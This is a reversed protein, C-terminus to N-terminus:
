HISTVARMNAYDCRARYTVSSSSRKRVRAHAPRVPSGFDVIPEHPASGRMRPASKGYHPLGLLRQVPLATFPDQHHRSRGAFPGHGQRNHGLRSRRAPAGPRLLTVLGDRLNPDFLDVHLSVEEDIAAADSRGDGWTPVDSTLMEYLTVAPAFREAHSDWRPPRRVSLFPDLYPRTGAQINDAPTRSLSFDFLVLHKKGSRGVTAIGINEPKIDRHAVGHEELHDVADLLEEGFRRILDLSLRDESRLHQALTQEGAREMLIAARGAVELSRRTKVINTHHLGALVKAEGKLRDNHAADLAVKLVLEEDSDDQRVLLANASAGRGLRRVVTFGGDIRDGPKAVAPDVVAEPAGLRLEREAEDLYELFEAMSAIRSSVEPHTSFRILDVLGQPAGDVVDTIHLGNGDRLRTLLDVPSAAPPQGAFLHYAIAGLSFLDHHPGNDVIGRLVEPAIYIKAPDEVYDELHETGSTRHATHGSAADRAATRWNMIQLHPLPQDVDKVLISHPALARHYLRKQHAFKLTEALQRVLRLRLESSMLRLHDRLLLDLRVAKADHDFVLAPGRETEKFERVKLIGPHDVGELIQFERAGLRALTRRADDTASAAFPHLRIRRAVELSVHRGEWDQWGAGEALIRKLENTGSAVTASPRGFAATPSRGASGHAGPRGRGPEAACQAAGREVGRRDRRGGCPGAPRPPM